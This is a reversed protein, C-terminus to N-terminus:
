LPRLSLPLLRHHRPDRVAPEVFLHVRRHRYQARHSQGCLFVRRFPDPVGGASLVMAVLSTLVSVFTGLLGSGMGGAAVDALDLGMVLLLYLATMAKAPAQATRLLQKMDAKLRKRDIVQWM